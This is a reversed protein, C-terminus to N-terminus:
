LGFRRGFENLWRKRGACNCGAWGTIGIRTLLASLRDGLGPRPSVIGHAKRISALKVEEICLEDGRKESHALVSDRYAAGHVMAAADLMSSPACIM